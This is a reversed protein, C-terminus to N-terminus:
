SGINVVHGLGPPPLDDILRAAEDLLVVGVTTGCDAVVSVIILVIAGPRKDGSQRAQAARINYEDKAAGIVVPRPCFQTLILIIMKGPIVEVGVTGCQSVQELLGLLPVGIDFDIEDDITLQLFLKHFRSLDDTTM